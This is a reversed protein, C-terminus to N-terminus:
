LGGPLFGARCLAFLGALGSGHSDHVSSL